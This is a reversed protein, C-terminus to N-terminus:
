DVDILTTMSLKCGLGDNDTVESVLVQTTVPFTLSESLTSFSDIIGISEDANETLAASIITLAEGIEVIFTTSTPHTAVFPPPLTTDLSTTFDCANGGGAGTCSNFSAIRTFAGPGGRVSIDGGNFNGDNTLSCDNISQMAQVTLVIRQDKILPNRGRTAEVSDSTEDGDTDAATPDTGLLIEEVDSQGDGDADARNPDSFVTRSEGPVNIFRGVNIEDFDSLSFFLIGDGDSDRHLVNTSTSAGTPLTCSSSENCRREGIALDLPDYYRNPFAPNTIDFEALDSLGDGDTDISRPNSKIAFEIVDPLGDFDTDPLLTSPFVRTCPLEGNICVDWGNLEEGDRLGDNDDDLISGADQFNPNVGIRTERGDTITDLDTDPSNPDLAYLGDHAARVFDNSGIALETQLLFNNAASPRICVEGAAPVVGVATVQIDGGTAATECAAITPPTTFIAAPGPVIHEPVRSVEIGGLPTPTDIRGNPGPSIVVDGAVAASGVAIVQVDDEEAALAVTGDISAFIAADTHPTLVLVPVDALGLEGLAVFLPGNIEQEDSIGDLDTDRKNPDTLHGREVDDDLGDGDSDRRAPSSFVQREVGSAARVDWGTRVEDFDSIGDGDSDPNSDSSGYFNEELEHLGDEDLDRTFLLLYEDGARLQLTSFDAEPDVNINNTQITWFRKEPTGDGELDNQTGRVRVLRQPGDALIGERLTGFTGTVTPDLTTPDALAQDNLTVDLGALELARQMTIGTPLGDPGFANHTAIRFSEVNGDGFDVSIGVTRSAVTASSFAFNNGQADLVDFNAVKFILGQPERILEEVINPFIDTNEFIIPGRESDFPGLNLSLAEGGSPRLTAVPTFGNGNARNQRQLSLEINTLTFPIEGQNAVNITAQVRASDISRTVSQLESFDFGESVSDEFTQQSQTATQTDVTSSFGRASSTEMGQDFTAKGSFGSGAEYGVEAGFDRSNKNATETSRTDSRNIARSQAQSVGSAVTSQRSQTAGTVDTFSTSVNVQLSYDGVVIQPLPLNAILPNRNFLFLEDRDNQGDGDTDALIPSTEFQLDTSDALKDNDSDQNTPSSHWLVLEEPDVIGDGDTDADRPNSGALLEGADGLGDEDTDALTPDSTVTAQTIDGNSLRVTVTWGSQESSDSLGDGDTDIIAGTTPSGGFQVQSPNVLPEPTALLNGELDRIGSAILDYVVESQSGTTILVSLGDEALEINLVRLAASESNVNAQVISYSELSSAGELVPENFSLRVSTNSLSIAGVLRPNGDRGVPTVYEFENPVESSGGSANYVVVTVPGAAHAPTKATIVGGTVVVDDAPVGDFLVLSGETFAEGVIAISDGGNTSGISPALSAPQPNPPSSDDCGAFLSVCLALSVILATPYDWLSKMGPLMPKQGPWVYPM